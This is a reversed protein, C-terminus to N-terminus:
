NRLAEMCEICNCLGRGNCHNCKIDNPIGGKQIEEVTLDKFYGDDCYDCRIM